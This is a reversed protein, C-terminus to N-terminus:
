GSWGVLLWVLILATALYGDYGGRKVPLAVAREPAFARAEAALAVNEAQRLGNMLITVLLLQLGRRWQARLGGRMRLSYWAAQGSRRLAPLLNIAVGVAFGLGRLGFRELLGAVEAIDVATSLGDVTVIIVAMRLVMQLGLALRDMTDAPTGAATEIGGSWLLIPLVLLLSFVLWRLRFLRRLSAPYLVALCLLTVGAALFLREAPMFLVMALSWFFVALRGPTGLLPREAVRGALGQVRESHIM